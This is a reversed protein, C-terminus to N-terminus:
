QNNEEVVESELSDSPNIEENVEEVPQRKKKFLNLVTKKFDKYYFICVLILYAAAVPVNIYYTQYANWRMLAFCGFFGLVFFLLKWNLKLLKMCSLTVILAIISVFYGIFTAISAGEIGIIPILIFNMAINIAAGGGLILLNPWTKKIVLFQNTGIQFLMLLLPTLYLYPVCIYSISYEPEFLLEMGIKSISTGVITTTLAIICMLEFIKSIVKTNDKDRMISFAFYQWGGAFATYILQSISGIKAAVAYVGEADAGILNAIMVRDSSNFIWYILFNPLLPLAIKLMPKLHSWNIDKFSLWQHNLIVFGVEITVASILMSLPLAILYYGKIILPVAIAYAVIPSVTNMILFTWKKNQMRTPAAIIGNTAGILVSAACLMVLNGYEKSTYFLSSIPKNLAMMIGAVVTASILTFFFSTSVIEKKYKDENKEFFMRYMADYMGMLAISTFLSVITNSIDSLGYYFSNPMLRTIIPVMILPIIKSMAGGLGYILFNSFFLKTRNM